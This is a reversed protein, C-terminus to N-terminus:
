TRCINELNILKINKDIVRARRLVLIDEVNLKRVPVPYYFSGSLRSKHELAAMFIILSCFWPLIIKMEDITPSRARQEPMNM